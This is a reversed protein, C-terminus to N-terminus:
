WTITIFDGDQQDYIVEIGFGLAKLRVVIVQDTNYYTMSAKGTKAALEIDKLCRATEEKLYEGGAAHAEDVLRRAQQATLYESM